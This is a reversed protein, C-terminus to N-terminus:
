MGALYCDGITEVKFVKRKKAIKDLRGYLTELLYFVDSPERGSSWSTFGAIDVVGSACCVIRSRDFNNSSLMGVHRQM